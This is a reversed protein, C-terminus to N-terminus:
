SQRQKRRRPIVLVIIFIVIAIIFLLPIGYVSYGLYELFLVVPNRNYNYISYVDVVITYNKIVLKEGVNYVIQAPIVVIKPLPSGMYLGVAQYFAQDPQLTGIHIVYPNLQASTSNLNLLLYANYATGNGENIVGVTLFLVHPDTTRFAYYYVVLNPCKLQVVREETLTVNMARYKVHILASTTLNLEVTVTESPRIVSFTANIGPGTVALDTVDVSLENTIELLERGGIASLNLSLRPSYIIPIRLSTLNYLKGNSYLEFGIDQPGSANIKLFVTVNQSPKWGTLFYAEVVSGNQLVLLWSSNVTLGLYNTINFEIYNEGVDLYHPNPSLFDYYTVRVPSYNELVVLSLTKYDSGETYYPTWYTLKVPLYFRLANSPPVYVTVVTTFNSHPALRQVSVNQGDVELTVNLLEATGNNYVTLPIENFGFRVFTANSTLTAGVTGYYPLTFNAQGEEVVTENDYYVYFTLLVRFVLPSTLNGRVSVNFAYYIPMQTTFLAAVSSGGTSNTVGPPLLVTLKVALVRANAATAYVVTLGITGQGQLNPPSIWSPFVLYSVLPTSASTILSYTLASLILLALVTLKGRM